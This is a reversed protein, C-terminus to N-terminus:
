TFLHLYSWSASISLICHACCGCGSWLLFWKESEHVLDFCLSREFDLVFEAIKELSLPRRAHTARDRAARVTVFEIAPTVQVCVKYVIGVFLVEVAEITVFIM